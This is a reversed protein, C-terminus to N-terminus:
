PQGQPQNQAAQQAQQAMAAQHAQDTAQSQQAAQQQQSALNQEHGQQTTQMAFDHAQDHFQKMLDEFASLRESLSQAKTTIEAVALKTERDLNAETMRIQGDQQLLAQKGQMEVVKGAKELRLKQLEAQMEAMQQQSQQLQMQAQQLQAGTQDEPDIIKAMEDGVTGVDKMKIALATLKAVTLPPM